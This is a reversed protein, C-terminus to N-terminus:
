HDIEKKSSPTPMKAHKSKVSWNMKRMNKKEEKELNIYRHQQLHETIMWETYSKM